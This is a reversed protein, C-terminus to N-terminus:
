VLLLSSKEDEYSCFPAKAITKALSNLASSSLGEIREPITLIQMAIDYATYSISPDIEQLMLDRLTMENKKGIAKVVELEKLTSKIINEVIEQNKRMDTNVSLDLDEPTINKLMLDCLAEPIKVYDAFIEKEVDEIIENIDIAGSHRKAVENTLALSNKIRWTGVIRFSSNGTDSTTIRIGPVFINPLGYAKCIEDAKEPFELEISTFYHNVLWKSCSVKGFVEDNVIKDIVNFMELQPMEGYRGSHIAFVKKIDKSETKGNSKEITKVFNRIVLTLNKGGKFQKAVLLDREICPNSLFSGRLGFGDMSSFVNESAFYLNNSPKNNDLFAVKSVNEIEDIIFKLDWKEEISSKILGTRFHNLTLDPRDTPLEDPNLRYFNVKKSNEVPVYSLTVLGASNIKEFNTHTAIEFILTRCEELDSGTMEFDDKLWKETLIM